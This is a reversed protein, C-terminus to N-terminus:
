SRFNWLSYAVLWRGDPERRMLRMWNGESETAPSGDKPTVTLLFSGRVYALEGSFETEIVQMQVALDSAEFTQAMNRRISERGSIPMADPPMRVADAAYSAALGDADGGNMAVLYDAILANLASEDGISPEVANPNEVVEEEVPPCGVAFFGALLVALVMIGSRPQWGITSKMM